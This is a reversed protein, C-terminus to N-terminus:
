PISGTKSIELNSRTIESRLLLISGDLIFLNTYIYIRCGLCHFGWDIQQLKPDLCPVRAIAVFRISNEASRSMMRRRRRAASGSRKAAAAKTIAEVSGHTTIGASMASEHDVLLWNPVKGEHNM